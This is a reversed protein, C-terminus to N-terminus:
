WSPSTSFQSIQPLNSMRWLKRTIHLEITKMESRSVSFKKLMEDIEMPESNPNLGFYAKIIEFERKDLGLGLAVLIEDIKNNTLNRYSEYRENTNLDSVGGVYKSNAYTRSIFKYLRGIGFSRSDFDHRILGAEDVAQMAEDLWKGEGYTTRSSHYRKRVTLILEPLNMYRCYNLTSQSLSLEEFSKISSARRVAQEM